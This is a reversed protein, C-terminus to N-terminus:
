RTGRFIMKAYPTVVSLFVDGGPLHSDLYVAKPLGRMLTRVALALYGKSEYPIMRYDAKNAAQAAVKEFAHMMSGLDTPQDGKWGRQPLCDIFIIECGCEFATDPTLLITRLQEANNAIDAPPSPTPEVGENTKSTDLASRDAALLAAFGALKEPMPIEQGADNRAVLEGAETSVTVAPAVATKKPRGRKKQGPEEGAAEAAAAAAKEKEKAEIAANAASVEEPTSTRPPADPPVIGTVPASETPVPPAAAARQAELRERAEQAVKTAGAFAVGESPPAPPAIPPPQVPAAENLTEFLTKGAPPPAPATITTTGGGLVAALTDEDGAQVAAAVKQVVASGASPAQSQQLLEALLGNKQSDSMSPEAKRYGITQVDFGCKARYYCGGYMDCSKTNPPLDDATPPHLEAWAVMERVTAMDREWIADVMARTVVTAVPKAKPRGKTLLYLHEISIESYDSIAFIYKANWCLQTNNALEEPTKAYRFDSTTKYDIIRCSTPLAEVVDIYQVIAPGDEYSAMEGPEELLLHATDVEFQGWFETDTKPKPIHPLAVQVFELTSVDDIAPRVEGTKAYIELAKHIKEGRSQFPKQPERDKLISANYWVRPCRRYADV